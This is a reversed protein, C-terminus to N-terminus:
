SRRDLMQSITLKAKEKLPETESIIQASSLFDLSRYRDVHARMLISKPYAEAMLGAISKQMIQSSAYMSDMKSPRDTSAGAPGGSVDIALVHDTVGQVTDLPCPNTSSGDVYYRNNIEIPLFVAPMAASAAIPRRLDGATFVSAAGAYYDTAVVHLPISLEEFTAPIEAPLFVSFIKELNLEGLRLGGDSLFGKLSSPRIKLVEGVLRSRDNFREIIYAEIEAGSMGACFAAGMVSGMSTGAIVAPRVGLEDFAKLVHIHALGRAGGAGLVLAVSGM